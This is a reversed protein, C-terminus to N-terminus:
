IVLDSCKLSRCANTWGPISVTKYSIRFLDSKQWLQIKQPSCVVEIDKWLFSFQLVLKFTYEPMNKYLSVNNLFEVTNGRMWVSNTLILLNKQIRIYRLVVLGLIQNFSNFLSKPSITVGVATELTSFLCQFLIMVLIFCIVSTHLLLVVNSYAILICSEKTGVVRWNRWLFINALRCEYAEIKPTCYCVAAVLARKPLNPLSLFLTTPPPCLFDDKLFHFGSQWLFSWLVFEELIVCLCLRLRTPM